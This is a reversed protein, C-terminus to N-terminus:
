FKSIEQTVQWNLIGTYIAPKGILWTLFLFVVCCCECPMDSKFCDFLGYKFDGTESKVQAWDHNYPNNMTPYSNRCMCDDQCKGFGFVGGTTCGCDRKSSGCSCDPCCFTLDKQM